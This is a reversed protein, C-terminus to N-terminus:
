RLFRLIEVQAALDVQSVPPGQYVDCLLTFEKRDTSDLTVDQQLVQSLGANQSSLAFGSALTFHAILVYVM